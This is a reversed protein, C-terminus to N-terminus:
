ASSQQNTTFFHTLCLFRCYSGQPESFICFSQQVARICQKQRIENDAATFLPGKIKAAAATYHRQQQQRSLFACIHGANLYLFFVGPESRFVGHDVTQGAAKLTYAAIDALVAREQFGAAGVDNRDVRRIQGYPGALTTKRRFLLYRATLDHTGYVVHAPTRREKQSRSASKKDNITGVSKGIQQTRHTLM